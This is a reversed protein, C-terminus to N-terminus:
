HSLLPSKQLQENYVLYLSWYKNNEDTVSVQLISSVASMARGFSPVVHLPDTRTLVLQIDHYKFVNSM